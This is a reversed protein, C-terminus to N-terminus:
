TRPKCYPESKTNSMRHIAVFKHHYVASLRMRLLKGARFGGQIRGIRGEGKGGKAVVLKRKGGQLKVMALVDNTSKATQLNESQSRGSLWTCKLKRWTKQSRFLLGSQPSVESQKGM